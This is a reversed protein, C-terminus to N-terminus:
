RFWAGSTIMPIKDNKPLIMTLPGPCFKKALQLALSPIYSTYRKAHSFDSLHVILPNDAPRGKAAFIARVAAENCADAGLGYVTETPIGVIQGNKILEAAKAIDESSEKLIITDM